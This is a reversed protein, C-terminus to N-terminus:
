NTPIPPQNQSCASNAPVPSGCGGNAATNEEHFEECFARKGGVVPIQVFGQGTIIPGMLSDNSYCEGLAREHAEITSASSFGVISNYYLKRALPYTTPNGPYPGLTVLNQINGVTPGLNAVLAPSANGPPDVASRGAYGMSCVDAQGVLCGIQETGTSQTCPLTSGIEPRTAHVRYFAGLYLRGAASLSTDRVINGLPQRLWQNAGRCDVGAPTLFPCAGTRFIQICNANFTGPGGPRTVSAFCKGGFAPNGAPCANGNCTSKTCPLLENEGLTCTVAAYQEAAPVDKQDPPFITLVLGLTGLHNIAPTFGSAVASGCIQEGNGAGTGTCPVRIPDEDVFDGFGTVVRFNQTTGAVPPANCFPNSQQTTAVAPLTSAIKYIGPVGLLSVFTDTTGSGDDRRYVHHVPKAVCATGQCGAAGAFLNSYDAVLSRRADSDCDRTNGADHHIGFFLLKLFDSYNSSAYNNAGDCGPCQIGPTTNRDTVAITKVAGDYAVTGCTNLAATNVAVAVGDLAVAVGSAQAGAVTVGGVLKCTQGAQLFRSMPAATQTGSGMASEGNGSGTGLYNIGMAPPCNNIVDKTMLNMTDSGLMDPFASVATAGAGILVFTAGVATIRM